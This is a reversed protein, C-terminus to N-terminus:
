NWPNIEWLDLYIQNQEEFLRNCEETGMSVATIQMEEAKAIVDPQAAAAQFCNSLYKIIAPDTGERIAIGRCNYQVVDYGCEQYTPLDPYWSSRETDGTALYKVQGNDVFTKGDSVNLCFADCHGGSVATLIASEGDFPIINFKAGTEDELLKLTLGESATVATVGFSIEGPNAIAADILENLSNYKSNAAVGIVGPDLMLSDVMDFGGDIGYPKDWGICTILYPTPCFGITYGDPKSNYLATWGVDGSAGEKYEVVFSHDWGEMEKVKEALVRFWVDYTGGAAFPCIYTIDKSPYDLPLGAPHEIGAEDVFAEAVVGDQTGASSTASSAATSGSVATGASSSSSGGCAALSLAMSSALTLALVKTLKRM